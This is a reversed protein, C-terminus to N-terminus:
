DRVGGEIEVNGGSRGVDGFHARMEYFGDEEWVKELEFGMKKFMQFIRTNSSLVEAVFGLLGQKKALYTLRGLLERGVGLRHYDDRVVYAVEAIHTKGTMSYQGIGVITERETKKDEVVALIAMNRSYDIVAFDQLWRHSLDKRPTMFRSYLSDDSLAHFFEKLHSEDSIKVPRLLIELGSKTTRRIELSEPYIGGEGSVFAQDLYILNRRKAEEILWPRFDPHAISILDMARERINKGHLYAIGHETVVYHIDGRNLTVGSGPNLFPVIRSARGDEATSPLALISKGGPALIAGRMFDAQGGIGSYHVGGLSEATAQGSLDIELASNIATMGRNQAIVLPSNTYDISRFDVLPNEDLFRYTEETGMCFSAVTKGRDIRKQSNDVVGARMLDAIGDTFLETHVGLHKKNTLNSLIANPVSGYGVQITSGDEVIRAVYGGIKQAIEGPVLNEYALLPEDHYVLYDVDEVNIFGDGHIRPMNSNIQAVVIAAAEVASKVIDVNIGLSMYGHKDPPSTQVLAVDIPIAGKRFLAPVESLFIPTYDADGRNVATRSRSGVFFSNLRFNERFKEEACPAIGLTWVHIMEAGLLSNPWKEVFRKLAGVLYQPEGCGTGVFIRDGPHIQKFIANEPWFKKPWRKRMDESKSNKEDPNM